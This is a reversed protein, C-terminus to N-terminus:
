CPQGQDPGLGGDTPEARPLDSRVEALALCDARLLYMVCHLFGPRRLPALGGSHQLRLLLDTWFLLLADDEDPDAGLHLNRLGSLHRGGWAAGKPGWMTCMTSIIVVLLHAGLACGTSVLFLAVLYPNDRRPIGVMLASSAFGALLSSISSMKDFVMLFYDLERNRINLAKLHFDTVVNAKNAQIM